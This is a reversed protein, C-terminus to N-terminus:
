IAFVRSVYCEIDQQQRGDIDDELQEIWSVIPTVRPLRVRLWTEFRACVSNVFLPLGHVSRVAVRGEFRAGIARAASSRNLTRGRSTVTWYKAHVTAFQLTDTDNRERISGRQENLSVILGELATTPNGRQNFTLTRGTIGLTNLTSLIYVNMRYHNGRRIPSREVSSAATM